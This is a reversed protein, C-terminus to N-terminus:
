GIKSLTALVCYFYRYTVEKTLIYFALVKAEEDSLITKHMRLSGAADRVVAEKKISNPM